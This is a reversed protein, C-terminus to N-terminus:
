PGSPYLHANTVGLPHLPGNPTTLLADPTYPTDPTYQSSAPVRSVLTLLPIPPM